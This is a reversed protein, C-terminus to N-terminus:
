SSKREIVFKLDPQLYGIERCYIKYPVTLLSKGFVALVAEDDKTEPTLSMYWDKDGAEINAKM